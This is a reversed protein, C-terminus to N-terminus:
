LLLSFTVIKYHGIAGQQIKNTVFELPYRPSSSHGVDCLFIEGSKFTVLIAMHGSWPHFEQALMQFNRCSIIKLEYGLERLLWAFLQNLEFCFGGRGRRIVKDYIKELNMTVRDNQALSFNEWPIALLHSAHLLRLNELTVKNKNTLNECKIRKLYENLNM